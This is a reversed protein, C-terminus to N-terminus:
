ETQRGNLFDRPRGILPSAPAQRRLLKDRSQYEASLEFLKRIRRRKFFGASRVLDKAYTPERAVNGRKGIVGFTRNRCARLAQKVGCCLMLGFALGQRLWTGIFDIVQFVM